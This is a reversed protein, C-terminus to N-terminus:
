RRHQCLSALEFFRRRWSAVFCYSAAPRRLLSAVRKRRANPNLSTRLTSPPIDAHVWTHICASLPTHRRCSPLPPPLLPSPLLLLSLPLPFLSFPCFISLLHFFEHRSSKRLTTEARKCHGGSHTGCQFCHSASKHAHRLERLANFRREQMRRSGSIPAWSNM